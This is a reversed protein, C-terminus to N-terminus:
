DSFSSIPEQNLGFLDCFIKLTHKDDRQGALQRASHKVVAGVFAKAVEEMRNEDTAKYKKTHRKVEIHMMKELSHRFRILAAKEAQTREEVKM